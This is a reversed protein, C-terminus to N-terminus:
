GFGIPNSDAPSIEVYTLRSAAVAVERGKSDTLWLVDTEGALAAQVGAKVADRDADDALALNLPQPNDTIGIRLEM